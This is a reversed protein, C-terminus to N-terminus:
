RAARRSRTGATPARALPRGRGPEQHHRGAAAGRGPLGAAGLTAEAAGSSRGSSTRCRDPTPPAKASWSRSRRARRPGHQRRDPEPQDRDRRSATTSVQDHRPCPSSVRRHTSRGGQGPRRDRQDRRAGEGAAPGTSVFLTVQTGVPPAPARPPDTEIVEGRSRTPQEVSAIVHGVKLDARDPNCGRAQPSRRASCRHAGDHQRAGALGDLTVNSGQNVKAGALPDQRDRDGGADPQRSSSVPEVTFGDNQLETQAVVSQQGVVAPVVVKTPRTLLYAASAVAPWCCCWRAVVLWSGPAPRAPRPAHEDEPEAGLSRRRHEDRDPPPQRGRAAALRSRQGRAAARCAVSPWPRRAGAM